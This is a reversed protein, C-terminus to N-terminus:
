RGSTASVAAIQAQRRIEANLMMMLIFIRENEDLEVSPFHIIARDSHGFLRPRYPTFRIATFGSAPTVTWERQYYKVMYRQHAWNWEQQSNFKGVRTSLIYWPYEVGGIVFTKQRWNITGFLGTASHLSTKTLRGFKGTTTITTYEAKGDPGVLQSSLLDKSEFTLTTAM